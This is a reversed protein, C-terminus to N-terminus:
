EKELRMFDLVQYEGAEANTWINQQKETVLHVKCALPYFKISFAHTGGELGFLERLDYAYYEYFGSDHREALMLMTGSGHHLVRVCFGGPTGTDKQKWTLWPTRDLDVAVDRVIVHPWKGSTRRMFVTDNDAVAMAVYESNKTSTGDMYDSLDWDSNAPTLEIYAAPDTKQKHGNHEAPPPTEEKFGEVESVAKALAEKTEEENL